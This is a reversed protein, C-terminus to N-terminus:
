VTNSLSPDPVNRDTIDSTCLNQDYGYVEHQMLGSNGMSSMNQDCGYFQMQMLQDLGYNNVSEQVAETNSVCPHQFSSSNINGMSCMNQDYGYFEKQMLENMGFSEQVGSYHETKTVCPHQFSNNTIDSMCINQDYDCLEQKMLQKKLQSEQLLASFDQNLNSASVPIRSLTKDGHNYM